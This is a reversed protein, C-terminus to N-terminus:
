PSTHTCWGACDARTQSLFSYLTLLRQRWTSLTPYSQKSLCQALISLLFVSCSCQAYLVSCSYQALISLLFVPWVSNIHEAKVKKMYNQISQLWVQKTQAMRSNRLMIQLPLFHLCHSPCPSPSPHAIRNTGVTACKKHDTTRCMKTM